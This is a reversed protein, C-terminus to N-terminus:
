SGLVRGGKPKEIINQNMPKLFPITNKIKSKWNIIVNNHGDKWGNAVWSEYKAKLSFALSSYGENLELKCFQLFDIESPIKNEINIEEERKSKNKNKNKNTSIPQVDTSGINLRQKVAARKEASKKGKDSNIKSIHGAEILQEDLFKISILGSEVILFRNVLESLESPNKYRKNIDEISLNGDRQWYLACINIFLGQTTLSEFVIDGTMWESVVFKFYPFNKAM